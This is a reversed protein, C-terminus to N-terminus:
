SVWPHYFQETEWEQPLQSFKILQLSARIMSITKLKVSSFSVLLRRSWGQEKCVLSCRHNNQYKQCAGPIATFAVWDVRFEIGSQWRGAHQKAKRNGWSLYVFYFRGRRGWQTTVFVLLCVAHLISQWRCASPYKEKPKRNRSMGKTGKQWTFQGLDSGGGATLEAQKQSTELVKRQVSKWMKSFGWM